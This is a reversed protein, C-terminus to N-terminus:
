FAPANEASGRKVLVVTPSLNHKWIGEGAGLEARPSRAHSLACWTAGLLALNKNERVGELVVSCKCWTASLLEKPILGNEFTPLLSPAM